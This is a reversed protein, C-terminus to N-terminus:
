SRARSAKDTARRRRRLLAAFGFLAILSAGRANASRGLACGGGASHVGSSSGGNPTVGHAGGKASVAGGTTGAAGGSSESVNGAAGGEAISVSANHAAIQASIDTTNDELVVGAGSGSTRVIRANAPQNGFDSPWVTGVGRVLGQPLQARWPAENVTVDANCEVVREATHVNDVAPLDSNFTFLPDVTMDRASMTTYLRTVYPHEDFIRQMDRVPRIVQEDLAAIFMQPTAGSAFTAQGRYCYPCSKYTQFPVSDPLAILPQIADWFGDWGGWTSYSADFIPEFATAWPAQSFTTWEGEDTDGWIVNSLRTSADAFETVFGQGGAEDAAATVVSNYNSNSNFWNIRTENLELSAYNQPVGRASGLLWTMVGMDDNAAVATLKIPIMPKSAAYRLVIPRISGVDATKLLKLALLHLGGQLYPRILGPAGDGVTYGNETLWTVAADAPDALSSNVSIVTWEFAGLTGSAEVTVDPTEGAAGGAGAEANGSDDGGAFVPTQLPKCTGEIRTTLSYRPNTAGQLRQFALNSALGLQDGSPVTSIPLLWSFKSAAGQYLIQIIATVTGDGNDAFVIREAAQNVPQNQSCFFGGCARATSAHLVGAFAFVGLSLWHLAKFKM